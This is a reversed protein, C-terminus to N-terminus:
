TAGGILERLRRQETAMRKGAAAPSEPLETAGPNIDKQFQEWSASTVEWQGGLRTARLRVRRDGVVVGVRIWNRVTARTRGIRSALQTVTEAM